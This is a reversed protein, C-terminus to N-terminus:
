MQQFVFPYTVTVVVNTDAKGNSPHVISFHHGGTLIGIAGTNEGPGFGDPRLKNNDITVVAKGPISSANVFRFGGQQPQQANTISGALVLVAPCLGVIINFPFNHKM